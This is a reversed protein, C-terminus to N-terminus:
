EAAEIAQYRLYSPHRSSPIARAKKNECLYRMAWAIAGRSHGTVRKLDCVELWRPHQQQLAQLCKDTASGARIGKPFPNLPWQRTQEPNMAANAAAAM